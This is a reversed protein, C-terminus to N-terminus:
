IIAFAYCASKKENIVTAQGLWICIMRFYDISEFEVHVTPISSVKLQKLDQMVISANYMILLLCKM